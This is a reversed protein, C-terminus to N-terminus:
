RLDAVAQAVQAALPQAIDLVIAQEDPTPPQLAAFQSALLSPPMFHGRRNALRAAILDQTGELFVLRVNPRGRVIRDRYARKLASCAIVASRSPSIPFPSANRTFHGTPAMMPMITMKTAMTM